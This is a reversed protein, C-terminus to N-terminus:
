NILLKKSLIQTETKLLITYIGPTLNTSIKINDDGNLILKSYEIQGLTNSISLESFNHSQNLYINFNGASPNPYINFDLVSNEKVEVTSSVCNTDVTLNPYLIYFFGDQLVGDPIQTFNESASILISNIPTLLSDNISCQQSQILSNTKLFGIKSYNLGDTINGL